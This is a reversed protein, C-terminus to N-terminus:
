ESSVAETRAGAGPQPFLAASVDFYANVAPLYRTEELCVVYTGAELSIDAIEVTALRRDDGAERDLVVGLGLGAAAAEKVAERTPVEIFRGPAVGHAACAAEFLVRTQSGAERSVVAHGALDALGVRGRAAFPHDVPVCLAPRQRVLLHSVLGPRPEALTLVAVDVTCAELAAILTDTNGSRFNLEVGAYRQMFAAAVPMTFQPPAYGVVLRGARLLAIDRAAADFELARGLLMRAHNYLTRGANTLVVGNRRDILRLACHQELAQVRQSVTPQSLGLQAAAASFSGQEVVAVFARVDALSTLPPAPPLPTDSM